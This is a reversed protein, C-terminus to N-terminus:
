QLYGQKKLLMLWTSAYRANDAQWTRIIRRMQGQEISISEQEEGTEDSRFYYPVVALGRADRPHKRSDIVLFRMQPNNVRIGRDNTHQYLTYATAAGLVTLINEEKKEMTLPMLGVTPPEIRIEDNDALKKLLAIFVKTANQNIRKM